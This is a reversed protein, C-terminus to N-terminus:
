RRNDFFLLFRELEEEGDLKKTLPENMLTTTTTTTTLRKKKKKREPYTNKEFQPNLARSESVRIINVVNNNNNTQKNTRSIIQTTM